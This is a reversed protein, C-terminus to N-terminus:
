TKTHLGSDAGCRIGSGAIQPGDHVNSVLLLEVHPWRWFHTSPGGDLQLGQNTSLLKVAMQQQAIRVRQM